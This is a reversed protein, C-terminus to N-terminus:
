VHACVYICVFTFHQLTLHLMTRSMLVSAFPLYATLVGGPDCHAAVLLDSLLPKFAQPFLGVPLSGGSLYPTQLFVSPPRLLASHTTRASKLKESM